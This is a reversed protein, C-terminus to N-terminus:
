EKAKVFDAVSKDFRAKVYSAVTFLYPSESSQMVYSTAEEDGNAFLKVKITKGPVTIELSIAGDPAPVLADDALYGSCTLVALSSIWSSVKDDDLEEGEGLSSGDSRILTWSDKQVATEGENGAPAAETKKVVTFSDKESSIQVSSIEKSEVSYISKSRIDDVTKSFTGHLTEGVIYVADSGDVQIYSQSNTSTNKGVTVVRVPKGGAYATVVIKAGDDLGYRAADAGASKTALGLLKLNQLSDAMGDAVAGAAVYSSTGDSVTWSYAENESKVGDRSIRIEGDHTQILIEEVEDKFSLDKIQSRGTFVLQLVYICLLVAIGALLCFKRNLGVKM